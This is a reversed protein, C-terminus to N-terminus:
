LCSWPLFFPLATRGMKCILFQTVPEIRKTACSPISGVQRLDQVWAKGVLSDKWRATDRRRLERDTLHLYYQVRVVSQHPSALNVLIQLTNQSRHM